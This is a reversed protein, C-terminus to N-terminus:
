IFLLFRLPQSDKRKKVGDNNEKRLTSQPLEEM